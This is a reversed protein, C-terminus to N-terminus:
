PAPPSGAFWWKLMKNDANFDARGVFYRRAFMLPMWFEDDAWMQELPVPPLEASDEAPAHGTNAPLHGRPLLDDQVSFWQPRMEDSETITGTYEYARYVDINFAADVGDVAFFLTGCQELPAKIGAEEELERIAAQLPTEEPDVKGGFGNWLGVGFGRKKLGLLVKRSDPSIVFANTYLKVSKYDVWDVVGGRTTEVLPRDYTLGPPLQLTSM